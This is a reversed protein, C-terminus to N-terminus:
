RVTVESPWRANMAVSPWRRTSEVIPIVEFIVLSIAYEGQITLDHRTRPVKPNRLSALHAKRSRGPVPPAEILATLDTIEIDAIRHDKNRPALLKSALKQLPDRFLAPLVGTGPKTISIEGVFSGVGRHDAESCSGGPHCGEVALPQPRCSRSSTRVDTDPRGRLSLHDHLETWGM